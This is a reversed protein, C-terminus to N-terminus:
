MLDFGTEERAADASTYEWRGDSRQHPLRGMLLRAVQYQFGGLVWGIRPNVVWTEAGFIFVSQVVAKFFFVSM